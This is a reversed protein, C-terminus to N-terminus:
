RRTEVNRVVAIPCRTNLLLDHSVSGLALRRLMGRSHTGVVVLRADAAEDVLATAADGAPITGVVALDPYRASVEDVMMTLKRQRLERVEDQTAPAILDSALLARPLPLAHVIQLASHLRGAERAAFELVADDSLELAVGVVVRRAGPRWGSPVVVTPCESHAAVKLPVTGSVFGSIVGTKDSGLLLLDARSSAEVLQESPIGWLMTNTVSVGPIVSRVSKEAEWLAQEYANRYGVEATGAPMWGLEAVTVIEVELRDSPPTGRDALWATVAEGIGRNDVAVMVKESM